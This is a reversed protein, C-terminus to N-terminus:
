PLTIFEPKDYILNRESEERLITGKGQIITLPPLEDHGKESYEVFVDGLKRQEWSLTKQVIKSSESSFNFSFCDRQHLTILNDIKNLYAAIKRQEEVSPM